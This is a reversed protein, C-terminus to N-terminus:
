PQDGAAGQEALLPDGVPFHHPYHGANDEDIVRWVAGGPACDEERAAEVAAVVPPYSAAFEALVEDLPRDRWRARMEGNFADLDWPEREAVEDGEPLPLGALKRAAMRDWIAVHAVADHLTWGGGIEADPQRRRDHVFDEVEARVARMTALLREKHTM